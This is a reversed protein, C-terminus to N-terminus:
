LAFLYTRARLREAVDRLPSGEGRDLSALAADIDPKAWFHDDDEIDLALVQHEFVLAEVADDITAFKGAAVQARLWAETEPNINIKM